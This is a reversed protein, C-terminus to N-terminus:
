SVTDPRMFLVLSKTDPRLMFCKMVGEGSELKCVWRGGELPVRTDCRGRLSAVRVGWVRREGRDRRSFHKQDERGGVQGGRFPAGEHRMTGRLSAVCLNFWSNEANEASEAAKVGVQGSEEM